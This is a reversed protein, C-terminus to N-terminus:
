RKMSFEKFALVVSHISRPHFCGEMPCSQDKTDEDIIVVHAGGTDNKLDPAAANDGHDVPLGGATGDVDAQEDPGVDEILVQKTYGGGPNHLNPSTSPTAWNEDDAPPLQLVNSNPALPTNQASLTKAQPKGKVKQPKVPGSSPKSTGKEPGKKPPTRVTM